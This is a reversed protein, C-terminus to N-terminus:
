ELSIGVHNLSKLQHVNIDEVKVLLSHLKEGSTTLRTKMGPIIEISVM